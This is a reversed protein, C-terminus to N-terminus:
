ADNDGKPYGMTTVEGNPGGHLRWVLGDFLPILGNDWLFRGAGVRNIQEMTCIERMVDVPMHSGLYNVIFMEASPFVYTKLEEEGVDNYVDPGFHNLLGSYEMPSEEIFGRITNIVEDWEADWRFSWVAFAHMTEQTPKQIVQPINFL